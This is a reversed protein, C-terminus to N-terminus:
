AKRIKLGGRRGRAVYDDGRRTARPSISSLHSPTPRQFHQLRRRPNLPVEPSLGPTKFRQMKCERRRTPQHSNEARNNARLGQEHRASLGLESKAASYSRLKDTVLM